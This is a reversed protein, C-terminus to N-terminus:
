ILEQYATMKIWEWIKGLARAFTSWIWCNTRRTWSIGTVQIVNSKM